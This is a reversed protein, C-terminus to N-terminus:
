FMIYEDWQVMIGGGGEGGGGGGGGGYHPMPSPGLYNGQTRMHMHLLPLAILDTRPPHIFFKM